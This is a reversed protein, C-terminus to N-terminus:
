GRVMQRIISQRDDAKCAGNNYALGTKLKNIITVVGDPFQEVVTWYYRPCNSTSTFLRRGGARPSPDGILFDEFFQFSKLSQSQSMRRPRCSSNGHCASTSCTSGPVQQHDTRDRLRCSGTVAALRYTHRRPTAVTAHGCCSASALVVFSPSWSSYRRKKAAAQLMGVCRSRM